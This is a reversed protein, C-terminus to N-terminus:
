ADIYRVRAQIDEDNIIRILYEGDLEDDRQTGAATCILIHDGVECHDGFKDFACPGMAMIEGEIVSRQEYLAKEKASNSPLEFGIAKLRKEEESEKIKPFKVKLRYSFPEYIKKRTM